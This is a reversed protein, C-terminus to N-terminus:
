FFFLSLFSVLSNLIAVFLPYIYIYIFLYLDFFYKRQEIEAEVLEHELLAIKRAVDKPMSPVEIRDFLSKGEEIEVEATGNGNTSM